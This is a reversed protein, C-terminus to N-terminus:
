WQRDKSWGQGSRPRDRFVAITIVVPSVMLSHVFM